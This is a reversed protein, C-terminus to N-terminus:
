EDTDDEKMLSKAEDVRDRLEQAKDAVREPTYGVFTLEWFISTIFCWLTPQITLKFGTRHFERYSEVYPPFFEVEPSVRIPLHKLNNLPSFEIGYGMEKPCNEDCKHYNKSPCGPGVGGFSMLNGMECIKPDDWYDEDDPLGLEKYIKSQQKPSKIKTTRIDYGMYWYLELYKLDDEDDPDRDLNIQDWFAEFEPMGFAACIGPTITEARCILTFLDYLTFDDAVKEIIWQLDTLTFEEKAYEKTLHIGDSSPNSM